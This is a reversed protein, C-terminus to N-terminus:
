WRWYTTMTCTTFVKWFTKWIHQQQNQLLLFNWEQQHKIHNCNSLTQKYFKCVQRHVEQQALFLHSNVQLLMYDKKNFISVVTNTYGHFTSGLRLYDNMQLKPEDKHLTQYNNNWQLFTKHVQHYIVGGSKNIIYLSYVIM